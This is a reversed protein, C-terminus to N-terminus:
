ISKSEHSGGCNRSSQKPLRKDKVPWRPSAPRRGCHGKSYTVWAFIRGSQQGDRNLVAFDAAVRLGLNVDDPSIMGRESLNRFIPGGHDLYSQQPGTCNFVTGADLMRGDALNVSIREGNAELGRVRGRILELRGEAQAKKLRDSM